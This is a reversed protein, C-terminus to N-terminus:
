VRIFIGGYGACDARWPSQLKFHRFQKGPSATTRHPLTIRCYWATNEETVKEPHRDCEWKLEDISAREYCSFVEAWTYQQWKMFSVSMLQAILYKKMTMSRGSTNLPTKKSHRHWRLYHPHIQVNAFAKLYAKSEGERWQLRRGYLWSYEMLLHVLIM